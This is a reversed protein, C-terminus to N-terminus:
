HFSSHKSNSHKSNGRLNGIPLDIFKKDKQMFSFKKNRHLSMKLDLLFDFESQCDECEELHEEFKEMQEDTINGLLYDEIKQQRTRLKCKM